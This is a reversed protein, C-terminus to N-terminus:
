APKEAAEPKPARAARAAKLRLARTADAALVNGAEGGTLDVRAAGEVLCAWYRSGRCWTRLADRLEAESLALEQAHKMLDEFIGIKLPVKPAPNKPFAQPFRKQLKAITLVVPDVPKSRAEPAARRARPAKVAPKPDPKKALQDRLAALQEFGMACLWHCFFMSQLLRRANEPTKGPPAAVSRAV